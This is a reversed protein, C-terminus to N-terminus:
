AASDTGPLRFDCLSRRVKFRARGTHCEFSNGLLAGRAAPQGQHARESYEQQIRARRGGATSRAQLPQGQRLQPSVVSCSVPSRVLIYNYQALQADRIKKEMKSDGHDVDVFFRKGRIRSRVQEAYQQSAQSIPVIMVQMGCKEYASARAHRCVGSQQMECASGSVRTMAKNFM